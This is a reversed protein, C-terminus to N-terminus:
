LDIAHTQPAPAGSQRVPYPSTEVPYSGHENGRYTLILRRDKGHQAMKAGYQRADTGLGQMRLEGDFVTARALYIVTDDMSVRNVTTSATLHGVGREDLEVALAEATNKMGQIAVIASAVAATCDTGDDAVIRNKSLFEFNGEGLDNRIRRHVYNEPNFSALTGVVAGCAARPVRWPSEQTRGFTTKGEDDERGVHTKLDINVLIYSQANGDYIKKRLEEDLLHAVTVHALTAGDDTGGGTPSFAELKLEGIESMTGFRAAVTNVYSTTAEGQHIRDGCNTHAVTSVVSPITLDAGCAVIDSDILTGAFQLEDRLLQLGNVLTYRDSVIENLYIYYASREAGFKAGLEWCKAVRRQAASKDFANEM